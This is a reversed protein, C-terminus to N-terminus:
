GFISNPEHDGFLEDACVECVWRVATNNNPYVTTIKVRSDGWKDDVVSGCDACTCKSKRTSDPIDIKGIVKSM